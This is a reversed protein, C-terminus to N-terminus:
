GWKMLFYFLGIFITDSVPRMIEELGLRRPNEGTTASDAYPAAHSSYWGQSPHQLAATLSRLDGLDQELAQLEKELTERDAFPTPPANLPAFVRGNM